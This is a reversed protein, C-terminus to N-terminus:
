NLDVAGNKRQGKPVAILNTGSPNAANQHEVDHVQFVVVCRRGRL